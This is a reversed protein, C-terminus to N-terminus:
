GRRLGYKIYSPRKFVEHVWWIVRLQFRASIRHRDRIRPVEKPLRHV